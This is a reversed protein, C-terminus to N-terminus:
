IEERAKLEAMVEAEANYPSGKLEFRYQQKYAMVELFSDRYGSQLLGAAYHMLMKEPGFFKWQVVHVLEHFHLSEGSLLDERIFYTDNYTIGAIAGKFFESIFKM